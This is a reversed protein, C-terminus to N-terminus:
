NNAALNEFVSVAEWGQPPALPYPMEVYFDLAFYYMKLQEPPTRAALRFGSRFRLIQRSLAHGLFCTIKKTPEATKQIHDASQGPAGVRRALSAAGRLVAACCFDDQILPSVPFSPGSDGYGRAASGYRAAEARLFLCGALPRTDLQNTVEQLNGKFRDGQASRRLAKHTAIIKPACDFPGSFIDHV